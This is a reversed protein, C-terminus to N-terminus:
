PLNWYSWSKKHSSNIKVLFERITEETCEHSNFLYDDIVNMMFLVSFLKSTTYKYCLVSSNFTNMEM